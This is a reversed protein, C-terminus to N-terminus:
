GFLFILKNEDKFIKHGKYLGGFRNKVSAVIGPSAGDLQYVIAPGTWIVDEAKEDNGHFMTFRSSITVNSKKNGLDFDGKSKQIAEDVYQAILGELDSWNEKWWNYNNDLTNIASEVYPFQDETTNLFSVGGVNRAEAETILKVKKVSM